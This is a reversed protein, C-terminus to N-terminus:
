AGAALLATVRAAGYKSKLGENYSRAATQLGAIDVDEIITMGAARLRTIGGKTASDSAQRTVIAGKRACAALSQRQPETLDEMLDASAIFALGDYIHGTLCLYKQVEYLKAAEITAIANEQAEFEGTRLAAPLLSFSLPSAAAGMALFGNLMIESQPVRIKLGKLDAITRVPRNSTIHRVGNEGWALVPLGKATALASFEAGIAGDLVQRAPTASSFLYPANIIGVEPVVNSLVSSGILMGDLTGKSCNKLMTLDDGLQSAGFVEVKLVGSLVPDEAVAKALAISGLGFVSEDSSNFGIRVTRAAARAIHPAALVAAAAAAALALRRGLTPSSPLGFM